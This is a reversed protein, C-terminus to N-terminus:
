TFSVRRRNEIDDVQQHAQGLYNEVWSCSPYKAQMRQLALLSRWLNKEKKAIETALLKV